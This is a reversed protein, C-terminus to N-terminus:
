INCRKLIGCIRELGQILLDIEDFTNYYAPSVRVAGSLGYSKLLPQACHHGSRVAIGLKDLLVAVDYHHMNSLSFSVVGSRENPNGLIHVDPIAKLREVTYALLQKEYDLADSGLGIFYEVAAGLAINGVINPTGAEFKFPLAGFTTLEESVTDVMGGGYRLPPLQNLLDHKGYLIGTGTPGMIKHGSFALFDCDLSQVDMKGHRASQAADVFVMAGIKHAASIIRELPNVTGLVNSVACVAVLRTRTSLYADMQELCLNGDSNLPLVRFKAGYRLCLQQWPVYNSHHEMATVLIEDGPNLFAHGVGQAILNVADTTGSTFIIQESSEANLFRKISERAQEMRVTSKESLTHIGRHVNAEYLRHQEAIVSLVPEPMQTTAANDLYVLPHNHIQTGLIPFDKRIASVNFGM